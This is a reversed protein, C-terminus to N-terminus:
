RNTDFSISFKKRISESSNSNARIYIEFYILNTRFLNWNSVKVLTMRKDSSIWKIDMIDHPIYLNFSDLIAHTIYDWKSFLKRSLCRVDNSTFLFSRVFSGIKNRTIYITLFFSVTFYGQINLVIHASLNKMRGLSSNLIYAYIRSSFSQSFRGSLFELSKKDEFQHFNKKFFLITGRAAIRKPWPRKFAKPPLNQHVHCFITDWIGPTTFGHVSIVWRFYMFGFVALVHYM